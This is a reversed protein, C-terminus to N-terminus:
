NAQWAHQLKTQVDLSGKQEKYGVDSLKITTFVCNQLHNKDTVSKLSM